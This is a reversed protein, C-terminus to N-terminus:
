HVGGNRVIITDLSFSQDNVIVHDTGADWANQEIALRYGVHDSYHHLIELIGLNVQM